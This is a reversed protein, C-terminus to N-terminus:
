RNSETYKTNYLQIEKSPDDKDNQIVMKDFVNTKQSNEKAEM